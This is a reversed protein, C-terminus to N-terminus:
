YIKRLIQKDLTEKLHHNKHSHCDRIAGCILDSIQMLFVYESNAHTIFKVRKKVESM